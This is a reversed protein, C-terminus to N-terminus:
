MIKKFPKKTHFAIQERLGDDDERNDYQLIGKEKLMYKLLRVMEFFGKESWDGKCKDIIKKRIFEEADPCEARHEFLTGQCFTFNPCRTWKEIIKRTIISEESIKFREAIYGSLGIQFSSENEYKLINM